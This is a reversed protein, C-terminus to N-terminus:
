QPSEPSAAGFRGPGVRKAKRHTVNTAMFERDPMDIGRGGLLQEVTILQLRPHSGGWPDIYNGAAAAETRMQRTPNDMSILVGFEASEREMVGRLDRVFAAQLHGAKVSIIAQKTQGSQDDKFFLRGDIGKDAGKKQEVPRAGVLGLAWWQFQYKDRDALDQAGAIDKPEGIVEFKVSGGYADILRHRILNVALHTIDIGIWNRGTRQAADVATGCGCFPDLVTDGPNSAALIIRQLLAIPKQTPYGLYEKGRAAIAFPWYDEPIKGKKDLERVQEKDGPVFGSGTLGEKYNERTKESYPIRVADANFTWENSKSYWFIVDHKRSFQRQGPSSPGTYTWIIENRFHQPEFAADMLMKLYHSATPDCHLFISGNPRLVRKLEVLRPAMMALYALLDSTGLFTRLGLLADAIAGGYALTMDFAESAAQDWHWTDEFAVIQAASRSGDHELFLANYTASSNFPPDLYVLDVSENAVHLRLVDLNDGYFLRNTV